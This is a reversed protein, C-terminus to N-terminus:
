GSIGRSFDLEISVSGDDNPAASGSGGGSEKGEIKLTTLLGDFRFPISAGRARKFRTSGVGKRTIPVPGASPGSGLTITRVQYTKQRGNLAGTCTGSYSGREPQGDDTSGRLECTGVFSNSKALAGAPSALAVLSVAVTLISISRKM